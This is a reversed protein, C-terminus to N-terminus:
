YSGSQTLGSSAPEATPVDVDDRPAYEREGMDGIKASFISINMGPIIRRYYQEIHRLIPSFHSFHRNETIKGM